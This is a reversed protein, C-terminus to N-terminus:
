KNLRANATRTIASVGDEFKTKFLVNANNFM